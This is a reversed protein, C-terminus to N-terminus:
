CSWKYQWAHVMHFSRLLCEKSYNLSNRPHWGSNHHTTRAWPPQQPRSQSRGAVPQPPILAREWMREEMITRELRPPDAKMTNGRGVPLVSRITWHLVNEPTDRKTPKWPQPRLAKPITVKNHEKYCLRICWTGWPGSISCLTDSQQRWHHNPFCQLVWMNRSVKLMRKLWEQCSFISARIRCSLTSRIEWNWAGTEDFLTMKHDILGKKLM